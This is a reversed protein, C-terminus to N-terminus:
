ENSAFTHDGTSATRAFFVIIKVHVVSVTNFSFVCLTIVYVIQPRIPWSHTHFNLCQDNKYMSVEYKTYDRTIGKISTEYRM